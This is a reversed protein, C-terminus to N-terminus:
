GDCLILANRGMANGVSFPADPHYPTIFCLRRAEVAVRSAPQRITKMLSEALIGVVKGGNELASLM